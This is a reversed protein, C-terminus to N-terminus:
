PQIRVRGLVDFDGRRTARTVLLEAEDILELTLFEINPRHSIFIVPARGLQRAILAQAAREFDASRARDASAIERLEPTTEFREGFALRATETCRCMPSSIVAGPTVGRRAFAAGIAEAQRRGKDTLLTEGECWGSADWKLPQGGSANMHRMFVVLNPESALANWLATQAVAKQWPLCLSLVVLAAPLAVVSRM